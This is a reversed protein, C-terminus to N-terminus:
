GHFSFFSSPALGPSYPPPPVLTMNNNTFFQRIMLATYVPANDHVQEIVSMEDTPKYRTSISPVPRGNNDKSSKLRNFTQNQFAKTREERRFVLRAIDETPM